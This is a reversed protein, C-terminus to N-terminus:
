AQPAARRSGRHGGRRHQMKDFKALQEADLTKAMQDHTEQRITKMAAIAEASSRQGKEPRPFQERLAALKKNRDALIVRVQTEQDATLKLSDRMHSVQRDAMKQPDFKRAKHEQAAAPLSLLLAALSVGSWKWIRSMMKNTNM